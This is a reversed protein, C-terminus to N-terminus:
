LGSDLFHGLGCVDMLSPSMPGSLPEYPMDASAGDLRIVSELNSPRNDQTNGNIHRITAGIPWGGTEMLWVVREEPYNVGNVVIERRGSSNVFGARGDVPLSFAGSESNYDYAMLVSERTLRM